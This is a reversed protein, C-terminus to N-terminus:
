NQAKLKTFYRTEANVFIEVLSGTHYRDLWDKVKKEWRSGKDKLLDM